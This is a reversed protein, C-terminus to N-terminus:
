MRKSMARQIEKRAEREGIVHRKDSKSRGEGVGIEVKVFGHKFYMKLPVVTVGKTEVQKALRVIERKHALLQRISAPRHQLGGAPPYESINVSHLELRPPFQQVKVYGEALSVRGDRVSKVESGLLKIGVELTESIAYDHRARRNLITPENTKAKKSKAM